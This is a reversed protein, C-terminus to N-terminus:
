SKTIGLEYHAKGDIFHATLIQQRMQPDFSIHVWKGEQILQDFKLDSDAIKKVIDLPEGWKPCIFDAAYGTMHASNAAGGIAANLKPCRYGSDIMIPFDHVGLIDRVRELGDAVIQLHAIIEPSPDNDIGLRVATSSETFEELKFHITLNM